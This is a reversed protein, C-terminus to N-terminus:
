REFHGNALPELEDFTMVRKVDTLRSEAVEIIELLADITASKAEDFSAFRESLPQTGVVEVSVTEVTVAPAPLKTKTASAKRKVPIAKAKSAKPGAKAGASPKAVSIEASTKKPKLPTAKAKKAM